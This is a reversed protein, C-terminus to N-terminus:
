LAAALRMVTTAAGDTWTVDRDGWIYLALAVLNRQAKSAIAPDRFNVELLRKCYPCGDQGFYLMVRKGERTAEAVDDPLHLLSEAFWDPPEQSGVPFAILFLFALLFRLM